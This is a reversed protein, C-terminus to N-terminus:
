KNFLVKNVEKQLDKLKEISYGISKKRMDATWVVGCPKSNEDMMSEMSFAQTLLTANTKNLMNWLEEVRKDLEEIQEKTYLGKRNLAWVALGRRKLVHFM